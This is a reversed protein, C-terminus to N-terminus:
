GDVLPPKAKRGHDDLGVVGEIGDAKAHFPEFGETHGAFFQHRWGDHVGDLGHAAIHDDDQALVVLGDGVRYEALLVAGGFGQAEDEGLLMVLVSAGRHGGKGM